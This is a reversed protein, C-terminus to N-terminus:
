CRKPTWALREALQAAGSHSMRGYRLSHLAEGSEDHLTLCGVYAMRWTRAVPRQPEGKKPRGVPRQKPEEMPVAIRDLSISM